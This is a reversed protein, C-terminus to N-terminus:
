SAGEAPQPKVAHHDPPFAALMAAADDFVAVDPYRDLAAGWGRRMQEWTLAPGHQKELGDIDPRVLAVVRAYSSRFGRNGLVTRGFGEIVGVVRAGFGYNNSLDGWYAWFGCHCGKLRHSSDVVDLGVAPDVEPAGHESYARTTHLAPWPTFVASTKARGGAYCRARNVGPHWPTCFTSGTLWGDLTIGFARQGRVVGVAFGVNDFGAEGPTEPAPQDPKAVPALPGPVAAPGVPVGPPFLGAPAPCVVQVGQGTSRFDARLGVEMASHSWMVEVVGPGRLDRSRIEHRLEALLRDLLFSGLWAPEKGGAWELAVPGM